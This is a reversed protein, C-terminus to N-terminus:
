GNLENEILKQTCQMVIEKISVRSPLNLLYDVTKVIDETKMMKERPMKVDATMDTDVLNPCIATVSIGLPALEKYLSENLGMVGFKSAAYGGLPARGVKGSISAITIIKGYKQTKMYPVISNILNFIGVLNTNIMKEFEVSSLESTGRKVYGACNVLLDIRGAENFFNDVAEKVDTINSVDLSVYSHVGPLSKVSKMLNDKNRALILLKYGQESLHKAIAFGIGSSGGTIVATLHQNLNSM